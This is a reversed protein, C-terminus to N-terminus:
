VQLSVSVDSIYTSLFLLSIGAAALPASIDRVRGGSLEWSNDDHQEIQLAIWVDESVEVGGKELLDRGEGAFVTDILDADAFISLEVANLTVNFFPDASDSFKMLLSHNSATWRM